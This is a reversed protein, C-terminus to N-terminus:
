WKVLGARAHAVWDLAHSVVFDLRAAPAVFICHKPDIAMECCMRHANICEAIGSGDYTPVRVQGSAPDEDLEEEDAEVVFNVDDDEEVYEAFRARRKPETAMAEDADDLQQQWAADEADAQKLAAQASTRRRGVPERAERGVRHIHEWNTESPRLPRRTPPPANGTTSSWHASGSGFGSDSKIGGHVESLLDLDYISTDLVLKGGSGFALVAVFFGLFMWNPAPGAVICFIDSLLLSINFALKRGIIDASIGPPAPPPDVPYASRALRSCLRIYTRIRQSRLAEVLAAM